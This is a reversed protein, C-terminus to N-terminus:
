FRFGTIDAGRPSIAYLDRAIQVTCGNRFILDIAKVVFEDRRRGSVLTTAIVEHKISPM